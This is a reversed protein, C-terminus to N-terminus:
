FFELPPPRFGRFNTRLCLKATGSKLQRRRSQLYFYFLKCMHQLICSLKYMHQLIHFLAFGAMVHQLLGILMLWLM